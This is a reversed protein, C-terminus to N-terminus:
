SRRGPMVYTISSSTDLVMSIHGVVSKQREDNRYAIAYAPDGATALDIVQLSNKAEVETTVSLTSRPLGYEDVSGEPFGEITFQLLSDVNHPNNKDFVFTYNIDPQGRLLVNADHSNTSKNYVYNVIEHGIDAPNGDQAPKIVIENIGIYNWGTDLNDPRFSSKPITFVASAYRIIDSTEYLVMRTSHQVDVEDNSENVVRTGFLLLSFVTTSILGLLSIAIILEILTVGKKRNYLGNRMLNM